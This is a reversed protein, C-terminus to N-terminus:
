NANKKPSEGVNESLDSRRSVGTDADRNEDVLTRTVVNESQYIRSVMSSDLSAPISRM